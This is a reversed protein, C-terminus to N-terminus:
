TGCQVGLSAHSHGHLHHGHPLLEVVIRVGEKWESMTEMAVKPKMQLFYNGINTHTHTHACM